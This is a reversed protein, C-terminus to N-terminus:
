PISTTHVFNCCSLRVPHANARWWHTRLSCAPVGRIVHNSTLLALGRMWSRPFDFTSLSPNPITVNTKHYCPRLSPEDVLSNGNLPASVPSQVWHCVRLLFIKRRYLVGAIRKCKINKKLSHSFETHCSNSISSYHVTHFAAWKQLFINAPKM